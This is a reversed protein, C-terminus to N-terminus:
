EVGVAYFASVGNATTDTYANMPPTAPVHTAVPQKFGSLVNTTRLLTYSRGGVSPWRVVPSSDAESTAPTVGLWSASNTADTGAKWECGNDVLDGDEDGSAALGTISAGYQWEWADPLGDGDGDVTASVFEYAGADVTGYLVRPKGELDTADAMWAENSGANVFPSDAQLRYDGASADVFRPNVNTDLSIYDTGYGWYYYWWNSYVICGRLDCGAAAGSATSYAINETLTCQLLTANVASGGADHEAENGLILCNRATGGSLGGGPAFHSRNDRLICRSVMGGLSFVGGGEGDRPLGYWSSSGGNRLTFGEILTNTTLFVCRGGAGDIITRSAGHVSRVSLENTVLVRNGCFANPSPTSGTSYIGDAVLVTAGKTDAANIADQIVQAATAWSAYPPVPNTSAADVYYVDGPARLLVTVGTSVGHPHDDNFAVFTVVYDGPASWSHSAVLTNSVGDGDGFDWANSAIHGVTEAVLTLPHPCVAKRGGSQIAVAISGTLTGDAVEDCGIAPAAAWPEGDIDESSGSAAGAGICPSGRQVHMFDILQPDADVNGEGPPLPTTCTYSCEASSVNPNSVACNNWVVSNVSTGCVCGQGENGTITCHDIVSSGVGGSHNGYVACSELTSWSVACGSSVNETVVCRRLVCGSAGASGETARNRRICCDILTSDVAGAGSGTAISDEIVCRVLLSSAAGGGYRSAYNGILKSDYVTGGYVGGGKWLGRCGTIVCNSLVGGEAYAGGGKADSCYSCSGYVSGGTLAFGCLMAGNTLWACRVRNSDTLYNEGVVFTVAPGNVSEVRVQETTVVVRNPTSCGPVTRTGSKYVGNTVLVTDGPAAADVASQIDHAANTWSDFPSGPAPSNPDVYLTAASAALSGLGICASVFARKM